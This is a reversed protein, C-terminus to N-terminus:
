CNNCPGGMAPKVPSCFSSQVTDALGSQSSTGIANEQHVYNLITRCILSWDENLSIPIVPQVSLLCPFGDDYPGGGWDFSNQLPVSILSAVPNQTAKALAEAKAREDDVGVGGGGSCSADAAALNLPRDVDLDGQALATIAGFAGVLGARLLYTNRTTIINM